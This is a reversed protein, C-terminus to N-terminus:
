VGGRRREEVGIAGGEDDMGGRVVIDRIRCPISPIPDGAPHNGFRSCALLLLPNGDYVYQLPPRTSLVGGTNLHAKYEGNSGGKPGPLTVTNWWAGNHAEGECFGAQPKGM